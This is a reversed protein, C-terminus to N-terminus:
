SAPGGFFFPSPLDALDTDGEVTSLSDSSGSPLHITFIARLVDFQSSGAGLEELCDLFAALDALIFTLLAAFAAAIAAAIAPV